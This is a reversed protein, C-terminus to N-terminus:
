LIMWYGKRNSGIRKIKNEDKLKKIYYKVQNDSIKLSAILEKTTIEPKSKLLNLIACEINNEVGAENNYLATQNTQNTQNTLKDLSNEKVKRFMIVKFGDGFEEFMPEPLGYEKCRNIIRPIGTGWAEVIHMYHFAEAIAENRCTSKGTKAAVVDLGGYLKLYVEIRDIATDM